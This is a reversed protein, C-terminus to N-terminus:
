ASLREAPDLCRGRRSIWCSAARSLPPPPPLLQLYPPLPELLSPFPWIAASRPPHHRIQGPLVQHCRRGATTPSLSSSALRQGSCRHYCSALLPAAACPLSQEQTPEIPHKAGTTRDGTTTNTLLLGLPSPQGM